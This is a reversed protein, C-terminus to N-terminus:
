TKERYMEEIEAAYNKAVVPRKVKLTDTIEGKNKSLPEPLLTFRKIKEFSAFSKQCDEIISQFFRIIEDKKILERCSEFPINKSHAYKELAEFNPIILASVFKYNDAIVICQEIYKNGSM